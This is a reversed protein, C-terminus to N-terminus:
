RFDFARATHTYSGERGGANRAISCPVVKEAVTGEEGEYRDEKGKPPLM